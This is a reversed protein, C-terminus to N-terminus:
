QAAADRSLAFIPAAGLAGIEEIRMAEASVGDVCIAATLAESAVLVGPLALPALAELQAVASGVLADPAHLRHSLGYHGVIRLTRDAGDQSLLAAAHRWAREPDAFGLIRANGAPLVIDPRPEIGASAARLPLVVTDLFQAFEAEDQGGLGEFAIHLVAFLVLDPRGEPPKAGSATVPSSRPVVLRVQAAGDRASGAQWREAVYRTNQGQGFPGPGDDVLVIQCASTRLRRAQAKAAGMAVDAALRSALPQYGGGLTTVCRVSAAEDLARRFRRVWPKGYPVVSQAAFVEVPTPLVVHLEAGRDLLADAVVLDAGAALAGFGAGIRHDDVLLAIRETLLAAEGEAIALHGAFHLAGRPRFADLWGADEGAEALILELNRLTAAQDEPDVCPLAAARALEGKAAAVDGVLLLAEARTACLWAPTEAPCTDSDLWALLQRAIARAADRDGALWTLTAENIRTYPRPDLRFAAAFASAAEALLRPRDHPSARLARDRALRGAVALAAADSGDTEFGGAELLAAAHGLAGARIATVVHALTPAQQALKM